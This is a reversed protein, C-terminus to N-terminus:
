KMLYVMKNIAQGGMSRVHLMFSQPLSERILVEEKFPFDGGRCGERSPRHITPLVVLVEGHLAVTVKKLKLCSDHFVGQLSLIKKGSASREVLSADLLPAYLFEDTGSESESAKKFELVGLKNKSVRDYVHFEGEVGIVGLPVVQYFSVETEVCNGKYEYGTLQVEIRKKQRDVSTFITGMQFCSNKFKGMVMFQASDDVDFGVPFYAKSIPQEIEGVLEAANGVFSMTSLVFFLWSVFMVCGKGM